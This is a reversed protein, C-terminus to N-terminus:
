LNQLSRVLKIFEITINDPNEYSLCSPVIAIDCESFHHVEKLSIDFFRTRNETASVFNIVVYKASQNRTIARIKQIKRQVKKIFKKSDFDPDYFFDNEDLEFLQQTSKSFNKFDLYVPKNLIKADFLEFLISINESINECYVGYKELCFKISEEGIAGRLIAQQIYPTFIKQQYQQKQFTIQYNENKFKKKLFENKNIFRFPDDLDWCKIENEETKFREPYIKHEPFSLFLTNDDQLLSTEFTFDQFDIIQNNILIQAKVDNTLVYERVLQWARVISQAKEDKYEGTNIKKIEGLLWSITEKSKQNEYSIDQVQAIEKRIKEKRSQKLIEDHLQLIFTATYKERKEIIEQFYPAQLYDIFINKVEQALTVEIVPMESKTRDVRGLAQYFLSIQSLIYEKTQKVYFTNFEKLDTKKLFHRFNQINIESNKFLKWFYWLAKKKNNLAEEKTKQEIDFWYRKPDLLHIGEFDSKDSSKINLCRINLGNSATAYQTILIVKDVEKDLFLGDYAPNYKDNKLIYEGLEKNKTANLFIINAKKGQFKLKYGFELKQVEFEAKKLENRCIDNFIQSLNDKNFIDPTEDFFLHERKFSNCFVLHTRNQSKNLIWELCGFFRLSADERNNESKSGTADKEEQYFGTKKLLKIVPFISNNDTVPENIAFRVQSKRIESKQRKLEEILDIDELSPEIYNVINDKLWKMNFSSVMRDIDATASLAFVLNKNALQYIISEPSTILELQEIQALEHDVNNEKKITILSFGSYYSFDSQEKHQKISRYIFNKTIYRNYEGSTNDNKTDWIERILEQMVVGRDRVKDFTRLLQETASKIMSFFAYTDVTNENRDKVIKFAKRGLKVQELYFTESLVTRNNQFLIFRQKEGDQFEDNNFIFKRLKPFDFKNEKIESELFDYTKQMQEKVFLLDKDKNWFEGKSWDEFDEMFFRVFEISNQLQPEESLIELIENELFDFEDMFVLFIEDETPHKLDHLKLDRKGNFFGRCFKQVTGLLVKSHPDNEFKIYPFLKWIDPDNLFLVQWKQTNSKKFQFFQEKLNRVLISYIKEVENKLIHQNKLSKLDNEYESLIKVKNDFYHILSEKSNDGLFINFRFFDKNVLRRLIILLENNAFLERIIEIDTKLYCTEFDHAIGIELLDKNLEQILAHRNTIYIFKQDPSEALVRKILEKIGYTKGLGTPGYVPKFGAKKKFSELLYYDSYNFDM